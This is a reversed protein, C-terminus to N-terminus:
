LNLTFIFDYILIINLLLYNDTSVRIYGYIM